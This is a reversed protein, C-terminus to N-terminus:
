KHDLFAVRVNEAFEDVVDRCCVVSPLSVQSLGEGGAIQVGRKFHISKVMRVNYCVGCEQLVSDIPRLLMEAM